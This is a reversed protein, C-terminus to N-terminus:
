SIEPRRRRVVWLSLIAAAVGAAVAALWWRKGQGGRPGLDTWEFAAEHARIRSALGDVLAGPPAGSKVVVAFRQTRVAGAHPSEPHDLELAIEADSCTYTALVSSREIKGDTLKCGGPLTEGRGLMDAFLDEAGPQIVYREDQWAADAAPPPDEANAHAIGLVIIATLFPVL